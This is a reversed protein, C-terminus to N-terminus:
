NSSNKRIFASHLDTNVIYPTGYTIVQPFSTISSHHTLLQAVRDLTLIMFIFLSSGIYNHWPKRRTWPQPFCAMWAM